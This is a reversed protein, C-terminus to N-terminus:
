ALMVFDINVSRMGAERLIFRKSKFTGVINKRLAVKLVFKVNKAGSSTLIFM